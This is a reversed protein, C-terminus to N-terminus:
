PMSCPSICFRWRANFPHRGPGYQAQALRNWQIVVNPTQAYIRGASAHLGIIVLIVVATIKATRNM